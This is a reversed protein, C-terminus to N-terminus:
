KMLSIITVIVYYDPNLIRVFINYSPIVVLLVGSLLAVVYLVLSWIKPSEQEFWKKINNRVKYILISSLSLLSLGTLALICNQIIQVTVQKSAAELVFPSVDKLMRIIESIESEM